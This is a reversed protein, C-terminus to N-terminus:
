PGAVEIGTAPVRQDFTWVRAPAVAEATAWLLADSFGVRGSPACMSLAQGAQDSDIEHCSINERDLFDTLAAVADSRDLSYVRTLVFGVEALTVVSVRFRTPSEILLRARASHETHDDLLYRLIPNADLFEVPEAAAGNVATM